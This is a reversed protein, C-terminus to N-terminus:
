DNIPPYALPHGERIHFAVDYASNFNSYEQVHIIETNVGASDIWSELTAMIYYPRNSVIIESKEDDNSSVLFVKSPHTEESYKMADRLDGFDMADEIYCMADLWPLEKEIPDENGNELKHHILKM